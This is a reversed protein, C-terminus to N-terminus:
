TRPLRPPLFSLITAIVSFFFREPPSNRVFAHRKPSPLPFEPHIHVLSFFFAHFFSNSYLMRRLSSVLRCEACPFFPPNPEPKISLFDNSYSTYSLRGPLVFPHQELFLTQFPTHSVLLSFDSQLFFIYFFIGEFTCRASAFNVPPFPEISREVCFKKLRFFFDQLFFLPSV